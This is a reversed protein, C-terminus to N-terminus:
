AVRRSRRWGLRTALGLAGLGALLVSTPEPASATTFTVEAIGWQGSTPPTTSFSSIGPANFTWVQAGASSSIIPTIHLIENHLGNISVEADGILKVSLSSVTGPNLSGPSLFNGGVGWAYDIAGALPTNSVAVGIPAWVSIGNLKTIAAGDFNLGLGAYQTTVLNNAYVPTGGVSSVASPPNPISDPTIMGARAAPIMLGFAVALSSWRGSRFVQM